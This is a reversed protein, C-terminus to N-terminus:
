IFKLSIDKLYSSLQCMVQNNSIVKTSHYYSIIVMNNGRCLQLLLHYKLLPSKMVVDLVDLSM